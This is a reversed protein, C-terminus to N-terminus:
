RSQFALMIGKVRRASVESQNGSRISPRHQAVVTSVLGTDFGDAGVSMSCPHLFRPVSHSEGPLVALLCCLHDLGEPDQHGGESYQEMAKGHDEDRQEDLMRLHAENRNAQTVVQGWRM